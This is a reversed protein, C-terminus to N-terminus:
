NSERYTYHDPLCLPTADPKSTRIAQKHYYFQRIFEDERIPFSNKYKGYTQVVFNLLEKYGLNVKADMDKLLWGNRLRQPSHVYPLTYRRIFDAFQISKLMSNPLLTGNFIRIEVTRGTINVAEYRDDNRGSRMTKSSDFECYDSRDRQALTTILSRNEICNLALAMKRWQQREIPHSGARDLHVHIGCTKRGDFGRFSRLHKLHSFRNREDPELRNHISRQVLELFERWVKNHIPLTATTSVIELGNSLSGDEKIIAFNRSGTIDHMAEHIQRAIEYRDAEGHCECELEVGMMASHHGSIDRGRFERMHHIGISASYCRILSDREEREQEYECEREWDRSEELLNEYCEVCVSEYDSGIDHYLEPEWYLFDGSGETGIYFIEGCKDCNSINAHYCDNCLRVESGEPDYGVKTQNIWEYEVHHECMAILPPASPAVKSNVCSWCFFYTGKTFIRCGDLLRDKREETYWEHCDGMEFMLLDDPAYSKGYNKRASLRDATEYRNDWATATEERNCCQCAVIQNANELENAHYPHFRARNNFFLDVRDRTTAVLNIAESNRECGLEKLVRADNGLRDALRDFFHPNIIVKCFMQMRELKEKQAKLVSADDTLQETFFDKKWNGEKQIEGRDAFANPYLGFFSHILPTCSESYGDTLSSFPYEGTPRMSWEAPDPPRLHSTHDTM